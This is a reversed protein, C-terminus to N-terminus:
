KATDGNAPLVYYDGMIFNTDDPRPRAPVEPVGQKVPHRAIGSDIPQEQPDVALPAGLTHTQGVPEIGRKEKRRGDDRVCGTLILLSLLWGFGFPVRKVVPDILDRNLQDPRFSGCGGGINQMWDIVQADTMRTFDTVVKACQGCYRGRVAPEM